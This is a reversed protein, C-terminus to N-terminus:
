EEFFFIKKKFSFNKFKSYLIRLAIGNIRKVAFNLNCKEAVFFQVRGPSSDRM